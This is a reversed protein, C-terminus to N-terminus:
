RFSDRAPGVTRCWGRWDPVSLYIKFFNFNVVSVPETKREIKQTASDEVVDSIVILRFGRPLSAPVDVRVAPLCLRPGPSGTRGQSVPPLAVTCWGCLGGVLAFDGTDDSSPSGARAEKAQAKRRCLAPLRKGHGDLGRECLAQEEEWLVKGCWIKTEEM